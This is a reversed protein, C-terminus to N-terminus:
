GISRALAAAEDARPWRDPLRVPWCLTLTALTRARTDESAVRGALELVAEWHKFAHADNGDRAIRRRVAGLFRARDIRVARLAAAYARLPEQEALAFPDGPGEDISLASARPAQAHLGVIWAAARGLLADRDTAPAEDVIRLLAALLTTQHVGLGTASLESLRTEIALLVLAERLASPSLGGLPTAPADRVAAVIDAAATADSPDLALPPPAPDAEGRRVAYRAVSALLAPAHPGVHPVLRPAQAAWIAAHVDDRRRTAHARLRRIAAGAELAAAARGAADADTGDLAADLDEAPAGVVAADRRRRSWAHANAVAWLVPVLRQEADEGEASLRAVAPVLAMAHVDSADGGTLAPALACAALVRDVTAGRRLARAAVELCDEPRSAILEDVLGDLGPPAPAPARTPAAARDEDCGLVAAAALAAAGRLLGRRTLM